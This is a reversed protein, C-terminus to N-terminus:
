FSRALELEVAAVELIALWSVQGRLVVLEVRAGACQGLQEEIQKLETNLQQQRAEL